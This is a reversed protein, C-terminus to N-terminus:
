LNTLHNISGKINDIDSIKLQRYEKHDKGDLLNRHEIIDETNLQNIFTKLVNISNIQSTMLAISETNLIGQYNFLLTNILKEYQNIHKEIKHSEINSAFYYIKASESLKFHIDKHNIRIHYTAKNYDYSGKYGEMEDIESLINLVKKNTETYKKITKIIRQNTEEEKESKRKIRKREQRDTM